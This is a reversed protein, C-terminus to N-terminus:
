QRAHFLDYAIQLMHMVVCRGVGFTKGSFQVGVQFEAIEIFNEVGAQMVIQGTEKLADEFEAIADAAIEQHGEIGSAQCAVSWGAHFPKDSCRLASKCWEAAAATAGHRLEAVCAPM